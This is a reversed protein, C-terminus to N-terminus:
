YLLHRALQSGDFAWYVNGSPDSPHTTQGGLVLVTTLWSLLLHSHLGPVKSLSPRQTTGAPTVVFTIIPGLPFEIVVEVVVVVVKILEVTVPDCDELEPARDEAM